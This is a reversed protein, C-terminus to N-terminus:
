RTLLGPDLSCDPDRLLRWAMLAKRWQCFVLRVAIATVLGLYITPLTYPYFRRSFKLRNRLTYFDAILSKRAPHSSTGISGGGKHFVVSEPAYALSFRDRSRLAWDLEEYYLFYAEEM